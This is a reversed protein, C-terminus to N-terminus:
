FTTPQLILYARRFLLSAPYFTLYDAPRLAWFAAINPQTNCHNASKQEPGGEREHFPRAQEFNLFPLM